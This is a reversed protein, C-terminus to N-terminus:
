DKGLIKKAAQINPRLSRLDARHQLFPHQLLEAATARKDVDVELCCDLFGRFEPSLKKGQPIEPRGNTAILYLARLATEKMYPPEGDIMEIAMIGLSWIDIKKGYTKRAVVEPAMWYPTGIMTQRQENEQISACFGFDTVKVTGDMGLLINDSKIDRHIIGKSHLYAIGLLVEHCVAAIQTEKLVTETVVDTLPGGELLEMIVWLHDDDLYADLFNVLNPHVIDRLVLIETLIMEKRNKKTLEMSKIAVRYNVAPHRSDTAVFVVGSAGSGVEKVREYHDDIPNGKKCIQKLDFDVESATLDRHFNDKKRLLTSDCEEDESEDETEEWEPEGKSDLDTVQLQTVGVIVKELNPQEAQSYGEDVYSRDLSQDCHPPLAPLLDSKEPMPLAVPSNSRQQPPLVALDVNVSDTALTSTSSEQNVTVNQIAMTENTIKDNAALTKYRKQSNSYFFKVAQIVAHPNERMEGQTLERNIMSLWEDPLGELAGTSENKKVHFNHIVGTPGSIVSPQRDGNSSKDM